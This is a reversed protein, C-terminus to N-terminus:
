TTSPSLTVEGSITLAEIIPKIGIHKVNQQRKNQLVNM